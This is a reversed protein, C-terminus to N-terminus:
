EVDFPESRIVFPGEASTGEAAARYRGSRDAPTDVSVPHRADPPLELTIGTCEGDDSAVPRWEGARLEELSVQCALGDFTIVGATSNVVELV